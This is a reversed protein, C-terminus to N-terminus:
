GNIVVKGLEAAQKEAVELGLRALSLVAQSAISVRAARQIREYEERSITIGIQIKDM